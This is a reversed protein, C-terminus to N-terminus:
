SSEENKIQSRNLLRMLMDQTEAATSSSEPVRSAAPTASAGLAPSQSTPGPKAMFSAVLDSASITRSHSPQVEEHHTASLSPSLLNLLSMAQDASATRQQQDDRPTPVNPSLIDSGHHPPTNVPGPSYVPSSVSPNHYGHPFPYAHSQLGFRPGDSQPNFARAESSPYAAAQADQSQAPRPKMSAFLAQLDSPTSM